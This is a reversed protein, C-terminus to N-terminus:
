KASQEYQVQNQNDNSCSKAASCSAFMAGSVLVGILSAAAATRLWVPAKDMARKFSSKSEEEINIPRAFYTKERPCEAKEAFEEYNNILFKRDKPKLGDLVDFRTKNYAQIILNLTDSLDGEFIKNSENSLQRKRNREKLINDLLVSSERAVSDCYETEKELEVRGNEYNSISLYDKIEAIKKNLNDSYFWLMMKNRPNRQGDDTDNRQGEDTFDTKAYLQEIKTKFDVSKFIDKNRTYGMKRIQDNFDATNSKYQSVTEHYPILYNKFDEELAKLKNKKEIETNELNTERKQKEVPYEAQEKNRDNNLAYFSETFNQQRKMADEQSNLNTNWANGDKIHNLIKEGYSLVDEYAAKLGDKAEAIRSTLDKIKEDHTINLDKISKCIEAIKSDYDATTEQRNQEYRVTLEKITEITAELGADSKVIRERLKEKRGSIDDIIRIINAEYNRATEAVYDEFKGGYEQLMENCYLFAKELREFPKRLRENQKRQKKTLMKEAPPTLGIRINKDFPIIKGVTREAVSGVATFLQELFSVEETGRGIVVKAATNTM